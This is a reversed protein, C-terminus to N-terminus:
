GRKKTAYMHRDARAALESLSESGNFQAVGIAVNVAGFALPRARLFARIDAALRSAAQWDGPALVFFEDAHEGCRAALCSKPLEQLAEAILRLAANGAEHGYTDNIAKLGNVDLLLLCIPVGTRKAAELRRPAEQMFARRNPLGTLEDTYALHLLREKEEATGM